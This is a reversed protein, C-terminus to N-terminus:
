PNTAAEITLRFEGFVRALDAPTYHANLGSPNPLVYLLTTGITEPQQGLTAQPQAFALRYASIGLVALVQPRYREVKAQLRRGGAALEDATLESAAATAREVINTIGYGATLLELEEEPKLLRPTFGAKHLTPWFRNGPRAFHHGTVGSYLGPNIGCFLVRLGLAIVDPVTKGAAALIEDKTPRRTTTM